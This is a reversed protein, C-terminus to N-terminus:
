RAEQAVVPDPHLLNSTTHRHLEASLDALDPMAEHTAKHEQALHRLAQVWETFERHERAHEQAAVRAERRRAREERIAVIVLAIVVLLLGDTALTLATSM